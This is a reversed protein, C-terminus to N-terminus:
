VLVNRAHGVIALSKRDTGTWMWKSFVFVKWRRHVATHFNSSVFFVHFLKLTENKKKTKLDFFIDTFAISLYTIITRHGCDVLPIYEGFSILWLGGSKWECSRFFSSFFLSFSVFIQSSCLQPVFSICNVISSKRILAYKQQSNAMSTAWLFWLETEELKSEDKYDWLVHPWRTACNFVNYSATSCSFEM